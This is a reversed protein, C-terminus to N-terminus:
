EKVFFMMKAVNLKEQGLPILSTKTLPFCFFCTNEKKLYQISLQFQCKSNCCLILIAAHKGM